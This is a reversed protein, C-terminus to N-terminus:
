LYLVQKFIEMKFQNEINIYRSRDQSREINFSGKGQKGLCHSLHHGAIFWITRNNKSKYISYFLKISFKQLKLHLYFHLLMTQWNSFKGPEESTWESGSPWTSAARHSAILYTLIPGRLFFGYKFINFTRFM